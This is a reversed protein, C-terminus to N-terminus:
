VDVSSARRTTRPAFTYKQGLGLLARSARLTRRPVFRRRRAAQERRASAPITRASCWFTTRLASRGVDHQRLRSGGSIAAFQSECAGTSRLTLTEGTAVSADGRFNGAADVWNPEPPRLLGPPRALGPRRRGPLEPRLIHAGRGAPAAPRGFFRAAQDIDTFTISSQRHEARWGPPPTFAAIDYVEAQAM